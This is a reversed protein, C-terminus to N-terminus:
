VKEELSCADELKMAATVMWHDTHTHTMETTDLKVTAETTDLEKHGYPSYGVLSRIWPSRWALISSDTAM